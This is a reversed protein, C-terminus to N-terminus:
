DAKEIGVERIRVGFKDGIKVTEGNAIVHGGVSLELPRDCHTDFTLMAGPVLSLINRLPEKKEALVVTVPTKISLLKQRYNPPSGAPSDDSSAPQAPQATDSMNFEM